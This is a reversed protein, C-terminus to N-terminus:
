KMKVVTIQDSSLGTLAAVAQTLALKVSASDAGESVILAGQFLPYDVASVAAKDYASGESLIVTKQESTRQTGSDSTEESNQTDTLYRTRSGTRLTLMVEVKGAGEINSLMETLRQETEAAYADDDATTQPAEATQTQTEKKSSPLLLLAIGLLLILVAYKYKKLVKLVKGTIENARVM